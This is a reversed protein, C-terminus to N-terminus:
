VNVRAGIVYEMECDWMGGNWGAIARALITGVFM